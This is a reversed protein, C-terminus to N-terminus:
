VAALTGARKPAPGRKPKEGCRDFVAKDAAVAEAIFDLAVRIRNLEKQDAHAVLWFSLRLEIDAPLVPALEPESLAIFDPLMCLGAGAATAHVQAVLNNSELIMRAGPVIQQLYNLEAASVLDAVYGIFPHDRLDRRAAIPPSRELYSRAAYLRLSYDTLKRAFLRGESPRAVTVVIDVERNALSYVNPGAILQVALGPHNRTLEPILPALFYSGFGEPVGIRVSGHLAHTTGGIGDHAGIALREMEEAFPVMRRGEATLLYGTPLRDFLKTRLANELSSIRRALTTHDSSLRAAAKTLQGCRAVALFTQLHNWNFESVM